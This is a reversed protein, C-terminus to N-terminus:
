AADAQQVDAAQETTEDTAAPAPASHAAFWQQWADEIQEAKKEGVGELGRYGEHGCEAVKVSLEGLTNIGQERLKETLKEALNLEAIDVPKWYDEGVPAPEEVQPTESADTPEDFLPGASLSPRNQAAIRLQKLCADLQEKKVKALSKAQEWESELEEAEDALERLREDHERLMKVEADPDPTTISPQEAQAETVSADGAETTADDEEDIIDILSITNPELTDTTTDSM